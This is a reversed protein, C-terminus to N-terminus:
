TLDNPTVKSSRAVLPFCALGDLCGAFGASKRSIRAPRDARLECLIIFNNTLKKDFKLGEPSVPFIRRCVYRRRTIYIARRNQVAPAAKGQARL